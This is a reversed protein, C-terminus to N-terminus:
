IYLTQWGRTLEDVLTKYTRDRNEAKHFNHLLLIRARLLRVLIKTVFNTIPQGFLNDM